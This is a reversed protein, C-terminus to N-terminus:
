RTKESRAKKGIKELSYREGFRRWYSFEMPLEELFSATM